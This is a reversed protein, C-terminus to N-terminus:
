VMIIEPLIGWFHKLSAKADIAIILTMDKLSTRLSVKGLVLPFLPYV